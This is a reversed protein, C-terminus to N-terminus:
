VTPVSAAHCCTFTLSFVCLTQLTSGFIVSLTPAKLPLMIPCVSFSASQVLSPSSKGILTLIALRISERLPAPLLCYTDTENRLLHVYLHCISVNASVVQMSKDEFVASAVGHEFSQLSAFIVLLICGVTCISCCRQVRGQVPSPEEPAGFGYAVVM